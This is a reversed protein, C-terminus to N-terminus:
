QMSSEKAWAQHLQKLRAVVDPHDKALNKTETVDTDM